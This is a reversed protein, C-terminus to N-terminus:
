FRIEYTVNKNNRATLVFTGPLENIQVQQIKFVKQQKRCAPGTWFNFVFTWFEVCRFWHCLHFWFSIINGRSIIPLIQLRGTLRCGSNKFIPCGAKQFIPCGAKQLFSASFFLDNEIWFSFLGPQRNEKQIVIVKTKQVRNKKFLLSGSKWFDTNCM